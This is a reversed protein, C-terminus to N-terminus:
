ASFDLRLKFVGAQGMHPQPLGPYLQVEQGDKKPEEEDADEVKVSKQVPGSHCRNSRLNHIKKM